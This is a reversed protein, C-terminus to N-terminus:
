KIPYLVLSNGEKTCTVRLLTNDYIEDTCEGVEFTSDKNEKADIVHASWKLKTHNVKLEKSVCSTLLLVILLLYHYRM